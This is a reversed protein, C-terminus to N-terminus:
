IRELKTFLFISEMEDATLGGHAAYFHQELRHKEFWWFVSEKPYPLILLNGIRDKLRKSPTKAGFFGSSLLEDTFVVDAVGKLKEKLLGQAEGLYEKELHLFFDRCSGAPVLPLGNRNKKIMQALQPCVKNLLVTTQPSVPTMGHDSTFMTAIRNPCSSLKQWFRNEIMTWCDDISDAFQPSTIGHRHGMADIDGFYVFIYTPDKLPHSCLSVLRDLADSFHSYPFIDAGSLMAQSYPSHAISEQQMVISRVKKKSLKQYITEFPFLKEPTLGEKLLTGSEHDGAHSFLLPAIMRDAIPEYYFWEYIGTEGVELGTNISTVQAATTSPFQASIKSAAGEHKFRSLFPYKSAFGEFFEWGFGDILFLIACNFKDWHGCVTDVALTNEGTGTLLKLITNPLCSFAYDRYLPRKFYPTWQAKELASFSKDNIMFDTYIRQRDWFAKKAFKQALSLSVFQRTSKFKYVLFMSLVALIGRVSLTKVKAMILTAAM